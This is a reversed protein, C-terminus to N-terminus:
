ESEGKVESEGEKNEVSEVNEVVPAEQEEPKNEQVVEEEKTESETQEPAKEEEAVPQPQNEVKFRDLTELLGKMHSGGDDEEEEHHKAFTDQATKNPDNNFFLLEQNEPVLRKMYESCKTFYDDCDLSFDDDDIVVLRDGHDRTYTRRVQKYSAHVVERYESNNCLHERLFSRLNTELTKLEEQSQNVDVVTQAYFIWFNNATSNTKEGTAFIFVPSSNGLGKTEPFVYYFSPTDVEINQQVDEVIVTVRLLAKPEVSLDAKEFGHLLHVYDKNVVVLETALHEKEPVMDTKLKYGFKNGETDEGQETTIEQLDLGPNLIFISGNVASARSFGQPIDSTGYNTYLYPYNSHIGMSKIFKEIRNVFHQTSLFHPGQKSDELSYNYNAIVFLLLNCLKGSIGMLDLFKTFHETKVALIDKMLDEDIKLDKDFDSTSNIDAESNNMLRSIATCTHLFKFLKRKEILSLAGSAFIEGKNVPMKVFKNSDNDFFFVGNIARFDMYKDMGAEIMKTVTLSSSYLIRPQLDINFGRLKSKEEEAINSEFDIVSFIHNKQEPYVTSFLQLFEKVSCTKIAGSYSNDLDFNISSYGKYALASSLLSESLGTGLILGRYHSKDLKINLPEM